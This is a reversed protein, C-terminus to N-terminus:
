WQNRARRVTKGAHCLCECSRAAPTAGDLEYVMGQCPGHNGKACFNATLLPEPELTEPDAAPAGDTEPILVSM